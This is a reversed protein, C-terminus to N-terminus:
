LGLDLLMEELVEQQNENKIGEKGKEVLKKLIGYKYKLGKSVQGEQGYNTNGDNLFVKEEVYAQLSDFLEKEKEINAYLVIYFRIVTDLTKSDGPGLAVSRMLMVKSLWKQALSYYKMKLYYDGLYQMSEIANDSHSFFDKGKSDDLKERQWLMIQLDTEAFESKENLFVQSKENPQSKKIKQLTEELVEKELFCAKEYEGCKSLYVCLNHYSTLMMGTFNSNGTSEALARRMWYTRAGYECVKRKKKEKKSSSGSDMFKPKNICHWPYNGRLKQFDTVMLDYLVQEFSDSSAENQKNKKCIKQLSQYFKIMKKHLDYPIETYGTKIDKFKTEKDLNLMISLTRKEEEGLGVHKLLENGLNYASDLGGRGLKYARKYLHEVSCDYATSNTAKVKQQWCRYYWVLDKYDSYTNKINKMQSKWFSVCLKVLKLAIGNQTINTYLAALKFCCEMYYIIHQQKEKDPISIDENSVVQKNFSNNSMKVFSIGIAEGLKDIYMCYTRIFANSVSGRKYNIAYINNMASRIKDLNEKQNKRESELNIFEFVVEIFTEIKKQKYWINKDEPLPNKNGYIKVFSDFLHELIDKKIYNQVNHYLADRLAEHLKFSDNGLNEISAKHELVNRANLLHNDYKERVKQIWDSDWVPLCSLIQFANVMLDSLHKYFYFSVFKEKENIKAFLDPKITISPDEKLNWYYLVVLRLQYPLYTKNEEKTNKKNFDCVELMKKILQENENNMREEICDFETECSFCNEVLYREATDKTFGTLEKDTCNEGFLPIFLEKTSMRSVIIWLANIRELMKGNTTLWTHERGLESYSNEQFNDLVIIYRENEPMAKILENLFFNQRMIKNELIDVVKLLSRKFNIRGKLDKINLATDFIWKINKTFPVIGLLGFLFDYVIDDCDSNGKKEKVQSSEIYESAMDGIYNITEITDTVAKEKVSLDKRQIGKVWEYLKTLREVNKDNKKSFGNNYNKLELAIRYYVESEDVCDSIDVYVAFVPNAKEGKNLKRVIGKMLYSKGCGPLGWVTLLKRNGTELYGDIINDFYQEEGRKQERFVYEKSATNYIEKFEYNEEGM